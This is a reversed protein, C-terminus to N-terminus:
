HRVDTHVAGVSLLYSVCIRFVGVGRIKGTVCTVPHLLLNRIDRIRTAFGRRRGGRHNQPINSSDLSGSSSTSCSCRLALFVQSSSATTTQQQQGLQQSPRLLLNGQPLHGRLTRHVDLHLPLPEWRHLRVLLRHVRHRLPKNFIVQRITIHLEIHGLNTFSIWNSTVLKQHIDEQVAQRRHGRQIRYIM